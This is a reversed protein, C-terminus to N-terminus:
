ESRSLTKWNDQENLLTRLVQKLFRLYRKKLGPFNYFTATKPLPKPFNTFLPMKPPLPKPCNLFLLMKPWPRPFNLFKITTSLLYDASHPNLFFLCVFFGLLFCCHLLWIIFLLFVRTSLNTHSDKVLEQRPQACFHQM